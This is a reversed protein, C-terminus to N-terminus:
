VLLWLLASAVVAELGVGTRWGPSGIQVANNGGPSPAISVGGELEWVGVSVDVGPDVTAWVGVSDLAAAPYVVATATGAGFIEVISRDYVVTLAVSGNTKPRYSFKNNFLPDVVNKVGGRDLWVDGNLFFGGQLLEGENRITWNLSGSSNDAINTVNLELVISGTVSGNVAVTGNTSTGNAISPGPIYVPQQVLEWTSNSVSLRRPLTMAGRWNESATPTNQAYQWNGAWNLLVEEDTKNPSTFFQGAYADKGWELFRTGSDVPTFHTGNFDGPFYQSTSGGLPGGPNISLLLFWTSGGGELPLQVLNPCEYEAAASLVGANTFNSALDWAKLDPSTYFQVTFEAARAVAMVWKDGVRVVKPDRFDTSNTNLVIGRPTFTYGTDNSSAIAQAETGNPYHLTYIAVVGDTSNPFFGSTNNTDLVVSGSFM